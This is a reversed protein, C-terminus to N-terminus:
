TARVGGAGVRAALPTLYQRLLLLAITRAHAGLARRVALERTRERVAFALLGFIGFAALGAAVAGLAGIMRSAALSHQLLQDIPRQLPWVSPKADPMSAASRARRMVTRADSRPRFLM